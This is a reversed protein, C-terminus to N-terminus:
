IRPAPTGHTNVLWAAADYADTDNTFLLEADTAYEDYLAISATDIDVKKKKDPVVTVLSAADALGPSLLGCAFALCVAAPLFPSPSAIRPTLRRTTM